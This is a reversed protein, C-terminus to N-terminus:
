NTWNPKRKELFAKLGEQGEPSSRLNAIQNTVAAKIGASIEGQTLRMLGKTERVACPGNSAILEAKGLVYDEVEDDSGVFNILQLEFARDAGFMEGTLMVEQNGLTGLKRAIFPSIVAPAIGLRVESFAFKTDRQAASFDCVSVLGVGGGMAHGHIKGIVPVACNYVANFMDFLREADKLNDEFKFKAMSQMYNLDAGACFSPGAGKFVAVSVSKDNSIEVFADQISQIMEPSFANRSDARNLVVEAIRGKKNLQVLEGSM